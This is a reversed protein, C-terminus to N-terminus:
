VEVYIVGNEERAPYTKLPTASQGLAVLKRTWMPLPVKGGLAAVWDLNAGSCLDFSSGHFPCTVIGNEVKGKALPLGWHPCKNDVACIEGKVRSLLLTKNEIKVVHVENERVDGSKAAEVGKM